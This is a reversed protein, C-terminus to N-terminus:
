QSSWVEQPKVPWQEVTVPPDISIARLQQRYATFDAKNVLYPPNDRNTVDGLEIWDTEQLLSMARSKVAAKASEQNMQIESQTLAYIEWSRKWTGNVNVPTTEKIGQTIADFLPQTTEEVWAYPLIPVLPTAFCVNSNQLRYDGEYIPYQMTETNILYANSM